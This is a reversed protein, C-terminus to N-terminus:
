PSQSGQLLIETFTGPSTGPMKMKITNPVEYDPHTWTRSNSKERNLHAPLAQLNWPVNLGCCTKGYLPEIHDVVHLIGTSQSLLHAQFYIEDMESFDVWEPTSERIRAKKDRAKAPNRRAWEVAYNRGNECVLNALNQDEPTWTEYCAFSKGRRERMYKKHYEKRKNGGYDSTLWRKLNESACDTCTGNSTLRKAIHGHKCPNGTFYTPDGVKIAASRSSKMESYDPITM